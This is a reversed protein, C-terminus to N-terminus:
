PWSVQRRPGAELAHCPHILYFVFRKIQGPDPLCKSQQPCHWKGPGSMVWFYHSLHAPGGVAQGARPWFTMSRGPGDEMWPCHSLQVHSVSRGQGRLAVHHSEPSNCSLAIRDVSTLHYWSMALVGSRGWAQSGSEEWAWGENLFVIITPSAQYACWPMTGPGVWRGPGGELLHSCSLLAPIVSRGQEVRPRLVVHWPAPPIKALGVIRVSALHYYALSINFSRCM